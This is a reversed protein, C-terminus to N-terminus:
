KPLLQFKEDLSLIFENLSPNQSYKEILNKQKLFGRSIKHYLKLNQNKNQTSIKDKKGLKENLRRLCNQTNSQIKDTYYLPLLWCELSNVCIAFFVKEKISEFLESGITSIIKEEVKQIIEMVTERGSFNVKYKDAVDTDIQVIVYDSFELSLQFDESACYKLVKDYGGTGVQKSKNRDTADQQPQAYTFRIDDEEIDDFYGILINKLVKQDTVGECILSFTKM